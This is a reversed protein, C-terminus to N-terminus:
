NIHFIFCYARNNGNKSTACYKIRHTHHTNTLCTVLEFEVRSLSLILSPLLFRIVLQFASSPGSCTHGSPKSGPMSGRSLFSLVYSRSNKVLVQEKATCHWSEAIIEILWFSYFFTTSMTKQKQLLSLHYKIRVSYPILLSSFFLGFSPIRQTRMSLHSFCAWGSQVSKWLFGRLSGVKRGWEAKKMFSWM